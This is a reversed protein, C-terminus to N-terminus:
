LVGLREWRHDSFRRVRDRSTLPLGSPKTGTTATVTGYPDYDVTAATAGTTTLTATLDGHRNLNALLRTAGQATAVPTGAPTRTYTYTGDSTPDIGAGTHVRVRHDGRQDADGAPRPRRLHLHRDRRCTSAEAM